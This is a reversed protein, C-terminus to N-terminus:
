TSVAAVTTINHMHLKFSSSFPAPVRERKRRLVWSTGDAHQRQNLSAGSRSELSSLSWDIIWELKFLIWASRIWNWVLVYDTKSCFQAKCQKTAWKESQSPRKIPTKTWSTAQGRQLEFFSPPLTSSQSKSKLLWEHTDVHTNVSKTFVAYM